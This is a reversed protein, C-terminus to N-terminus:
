KKQPHGALAFAYTKFNGDVSYRPRYIEMAEKIELVMKKRNKETAELVKWHTNGKKRFLVWAHGEERVKANETIRWMGSVFEAEYGIEIFKRWAWLAHDECDGKRMHEFTIPHQWFDAEMFLAEDSLYKCNSLFRLIDQEDKAAVASPGEFFWRFDKTLGKGFESKAVFREKRPWPSSPPVVLNKISHEHDM